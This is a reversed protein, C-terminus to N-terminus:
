KKKGDLIVSGDWQTDEVCDILFKAVDERSISKPYLVSSKESVNYSGTGPADTLVAPHVLVSPVSAAERVLKDAKEYDALGARGLIFRLMGKILWSTGGCGISTIMLCRPPTTQAAAETLINEFSAAMIRISKSSNGLCSVAVDAGEVVKAVDERNTSDGVITEVEPRESHKFRSRDRVLVRLRYGAELAKDVFHSGVKGTAGFVAITINENM